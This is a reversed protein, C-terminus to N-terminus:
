AFRSRRTLNRECAAAGNINTDIVALSTHQQSRQKMQAGYM